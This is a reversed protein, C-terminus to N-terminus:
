RGLGPRTEYITTGIWSAKSGGGEGPGMNNQTRPSISRKFKSIYINYISVGFDTQGYCHNYQYIKMRKSKNIFHM